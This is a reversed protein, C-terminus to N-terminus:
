HRIKHNRLKIYLIEGAALCLFVFGIWTFGNISNNGKDNHNDDIPDIPDIPEIPDIPLDILWPVDPYPGDPMKYGCIKEIEGLDTSFQECEYNYEFENTKNSKADINYGCEGSAIAWNFGYYGEYSVLVSMGATGSLFATNNYFYGHDSFLFNFGDVSNNFAINKRIVTYYTSQIYIGIGTTDAIFSEVNAFALMYFGMSLNNHIGSNEAAINAELISYDSHELMIGNGANKQENACNQSVYNHSINCWNSMQAFIGNGTFARNATCNSVINHSIQSNPSYFVEIGNGNGNIIQNQFITANSCDNLSVGASSFEDIYTNQIQVAPCNEAQIGFESGNLQLSNITIHPCNKLYIGSINVSEPIDFFCNEIVLYISIDELHLISTSNGDLVSFGASLHLNSIVLPTTESGVIPEVSFYARIGENSTFKIPQDLYIVEDVLRSTTPKRVTQQGYEQPLNEFNFSSSPPFCLTFLVLIFLNIAVIPPSIFHYKSIMPLFYFLKIQKYGLSSFFM